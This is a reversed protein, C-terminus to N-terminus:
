CIVEVKDKHQEKLQMDADRNEVGGGQKSGNSESKDRFDPNSSTSPQFVSAAVGEAVAQLEQKIQEEGSGKVPFVFYSPYASM